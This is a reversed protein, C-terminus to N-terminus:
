SRKAENSLRVGLAAGLCAPLTGLMLGGILAALTPPWADASKSLDRGVVFLVFGPVSIWVGWRWNQKPWRKGFESGIALYGSAIAVFWLLVIGIVVVQFPRASPYPELAIQLVFMYPLAFILTIIVPAILGSLAAVGYAWAPIRGTGMAPTEEVESRSRLSQLHDPIVVNFASGIANVEFGRRRLEDSGFALAESRYDAYDVELMKILEEDSLGAIRQKLSTLDDAM